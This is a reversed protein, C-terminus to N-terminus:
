KVGRFAIAIHTQGCEQKKNIYCNIHSFFARATNLSIEGRRPKVYSHSTEVAYRDNPYKKDRNQAVIM